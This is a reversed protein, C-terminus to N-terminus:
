NGANKVEDLKTMIPKKLRDIFQPPLTPTRSERLSEAWIPQPYHSDATFRPIVHWHLHPTINGLSAINMKVPSLLSRLARETAVLMDACHQRETASLDSFEVVHRNWILRCFGPFPEATLVVRCMEDLYVPIGGDERCFICQDSIHNM